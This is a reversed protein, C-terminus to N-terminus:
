ARLLVGRGRALPVRLALADEEAGKPYPAESLEVREARVRGGFYAGAIFGLVFLLVGLSLFVRVNVEFGETGRSGVGKELQREVLRELASCAGSSTTHSTPCHCVCEHTPPARTLGIMDNGLDYLLHLERWSVGLPSTNVPVPAM